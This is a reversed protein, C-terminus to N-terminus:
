VLRLCCFGVAVRGTEGRLKSALHFHFVRTVDAFSTDVRSVGCLNMMEACLFNFKYGVLQNERRKPVTALAERRFIWLSLEINGSPEEEELERSFDRLQYYFINDFM